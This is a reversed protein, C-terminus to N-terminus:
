LIWSRPGRAVARSCHFSPASPTAAASVSLRLRCRSRRAATFAGFRFLLRRASPSSADACSGPRHRPIRDGGPSFFGGRSGCTLAAGCGGGRSPARFVPHWAAGTRGRPAGRRFVPVRGDRRARPAWWVVVPCCILHDRVGPPMHRPLPAPARASSIITTRPPRPRSPPSNHGRPPRAAASTAATSTILHHVTSWAGHM